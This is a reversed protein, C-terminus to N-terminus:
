RHTATIRYIGGSGALLYLEGTGSRGFAQINGDFRAMEGVVRRGSSDHGFGWVRGTCYDGYVYTGGLVPYKTGRYVYGGIIACGLSHSYEWVPPTFTRGSCYSGGYASVTNSTGERCDWGMNLGGKTVFDVEERDGQGVDAVWLANGDFSFRWPNRLGTLWIERRRGDTATAYPNSPPISYWQGAPKHTVDIRLV